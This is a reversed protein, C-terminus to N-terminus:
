RPTVSAEGIADRCRAVWAGIAPTTPMADGFFLFPSCCLLDAASFADGLLFPGRSLATELQAFIRDRDGLSAQLAPHSLKAFDLILVPEMVGQYYFLWSLYAGRQAHGIPRGLREDGFRDTLWLIIAGRERVRDEGDVLFPVKGEPHPNAPDRRGTGDRRPIEVERLAIRDALGMMRILTVITDSRSMPAHYLTPM